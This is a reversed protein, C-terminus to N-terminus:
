PLPPPDTEAFFLAFTSQHDTFRYLTSGSLRSVNLQISVRLDVPYVGKKYLLRTCIKFLKFEM